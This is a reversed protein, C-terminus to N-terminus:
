KKQLRITWKEEGSKLTVTKKGIQIVSVGNIIDGEKLYRNNILAIRKVPIHSWLIANLIFEPREIKEVNVKEIGVPKVVESVRKPQTHWESKSFAPDTLPKTQEGTALPISEKKLPTAEKPSSTLPLRKPSTDTSSSVQPKLSDQPPKKEPSHKRISKTIIWGATGLVLLVLLIPLFRNMVWPTRARRTVMQRMKIKQKNTERDQSLSDENLKKLARLISSL